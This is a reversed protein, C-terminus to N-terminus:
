QNTEGVGAGFLDTEQQRCAEASAGEGACPDAEAATEPLTTDPASAATAPAGTGSGVYISVDRTNVEFPIWIALAMLLTGLVALVIGPSATELSGKWGQGEGGLKTPQNGLQGLIFAAGVLALLMGTIFGFQRTWVRALMTANAQHYRRKLADAELLALAKFRVYDESQGAPAVGAEYVEFVPSLDMAEHRLRDYLSRVELVSVVGFFIGSAVLMLSMLPLLRRQWRM